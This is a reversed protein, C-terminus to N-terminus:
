EQKEGSLLVKKRATDQSVEAAQTWRSIDGGKLSSTFSVDVM